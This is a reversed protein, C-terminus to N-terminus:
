HSNQGFAVIQKWKNLKQIEDQANWGKARKKNRYKMKCDKRSETIQQISIIIKGNINRNLYPSANGLKRNSRNNNCEADAPQLNSLRHSGGNSKCTQHDKSLKRKDKIPKGCIGCIPFEQHQILNVLIKTKFEDWEVNLLLKDWNQADKNGSDIRVLTERDRERVTLTISEEYKLLRLCFGRMDKAKM